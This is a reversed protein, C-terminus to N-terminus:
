IRVVNRVFQMLKIHEQPLREGKRAKWEVASAAAHADNYGLGNQLMRHREYFEHLAIYPLEKPCISADLWIEDRPVWDYPGNNGGLAFDVKYQNRVVNADVLYFKVGFIDGLKRVYTTSDPIDSADRQSPMAKFREAKEALEGADYDGSLIGSVLGFVVFPLEEKSVTNEIWGENEPIADIIAHSGSENFEELGNSISRVQEGNVRYIYIDGFRGILKKRIQKAPNHLAALQM